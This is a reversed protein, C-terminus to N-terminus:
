KEVQAKELEERLENVKRALEDARSEASAARNAMESSQLCSVEDALSGKESALQKCNQELKRNQVLAGQKCEFLAVTYSFVDMLKILAAHGGHQQVHGKARQRYHSLHQSLSRVHQRRPCTPLDRQLPQPLSLGRVRGEDSSPFTMRLMLTNGRAGEQARPCLKLERSSVHDQHQAPVETLHVVGQHLLHGSTLIIKINPVPGLEVTGRAKHENVNGRWSAETHLNTLDVFGLLALQERTVLAELDVLGRAKVHDLLQNKNKINTFIDDKIEWLHLVMENQQHLSVSPVLLTVQLGYGQYADEVMEELKKYGKVTAAGDAVKHHLAARHMAVLKKLVRRKVPTEETSSDSSTSSRHDGSDGGTSSSTSSEPTLTRPLDQLKPPVIMTIPEVSIVDVEDERGQNGWLERADHFSAM